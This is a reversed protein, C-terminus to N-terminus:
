IDDTLEEWPAQYGPQGPWQEQDDNPTTSSGRLADEQGQVVKSQAKIPM